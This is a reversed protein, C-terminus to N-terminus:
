SERKAVVKPKREVGFFTSKNVFSKKGKGRKFFGINL